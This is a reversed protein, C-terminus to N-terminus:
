TCLDREVGADDAVDSVLAKTARAVNPEASSRHRPCLQWEGVV